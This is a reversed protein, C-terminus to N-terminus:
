EDFVRKAQLELDEAGSIVFHDIGYRDAQAEDGELTILAVNREAAMISLDTLLNKSPRSTIMILSAGPGGAGESSDTGAGALFAGHLLDEQGESGYESGYESGNFSPDPTSFLDLPVDERACVSGSEDRYISRARMGHSEGFNMLSMAAEILVDRSRGFTSAPGDLDLVIDMNGASSGERLKTMLGRGSASLKWHIDKMTDGAIYERVGASETSGKMDRSQSSTQGGGGALEIFNEIDYIRPLVTLLAAEDVSSKWSVIGLLGRIVMGSVGCKFTGIHGPVVPITITKAEKPGLSFTEKLLDSGLAGSADYLSLEISPIMFITRNKIRIVHGAADGRVCVTEKMEDEFSVRGRELLLVAFSLTYLVVSFLVPIYGQAGSVFIAPILLVVILIIAGALRRKDVSWM